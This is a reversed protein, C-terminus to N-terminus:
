VRTMLTPQYGAFCGAHNGVGSCARWDPHFRASGSDLGWLKHLLVSRMWTCGVSQWTGPVVLQRRVSGESPINQAARFSLGTHLDKRPHRRQSSTVYGSSDDRLPAFKTGCATISRCRAGSPRGHPCQGSSGGVLSFTAWTNGTGCVNM